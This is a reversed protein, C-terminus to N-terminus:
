VPEHISVRGEATNWPATEDGAVIAATNDRLEYFGHFMDMLAGSFSHSPWVHNGDDDRADGMHRSGNDLMAALTELETVTLPTRPAITNPMTNM